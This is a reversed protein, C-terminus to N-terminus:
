NFNWSEILDGTFSICKNTLGYSNKTEDLFFKLHPPNLTLFLYITTILLLVMISIEEKWSYNFKYSFLGIFQGIIICIITITINIYILDEKTIQKYIYYLILMTISSTIISLNLSTLFRAKDISIRFFLYYILYTFILPTFTLKLHEFISENIPFYIVLLPFPLIEYLSHTIFAFLIPLLIFSILLLKKKM